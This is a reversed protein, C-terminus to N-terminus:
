SLIGSDASHSAVFGGGQERPTWEVYRLQYLVPIVNLSDSVEQTVTNYFQGVKAVEVYEAKSPNIQPSNSQLINIYPIATDRSLDLNGFGSADKSDSALIALDVKAAKAVTKTQAM